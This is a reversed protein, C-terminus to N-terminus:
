ILANICVSCKAINDVITVLALPYHDPCLKRPLVMDRPRLKRLPFEFKMLVIRIPFGTGAALELVIVAQKAYLSRLPTIRTRLTLMEDFRSRFKFTKALLLIDTNQVVSDFRRIFM